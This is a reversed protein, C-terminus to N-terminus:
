LNGEIQMVSMNRAIAETIEDGGGEIRITFNQGSVDANNLDITGSEAQNTDVTAVPAAGSDVNGGGRSAGNLNALQAVGSAAIAAAQAWGFMGGQALAKQVGIATDAVIIGAGVAKNDELLASNIGRAASLGANMASEKQREADRTAKASERALTAQEKAFDAEAQLRANAYEEYDVLMASLDNKNQEVISVEEDSGPTVIKPTIALEIPESGTRLEALDAMLGNYEERLEVVKARLKEANEADSGFGWNFDREEMLSADKELQRIQEVIDAMQSSIQAETGEELSELFHNVALTVRPVNEIMYEFFDKVAPALTSAILKASNGLTDMTLDFATAADKLDKAEEDTIALQDNAKRYSTTMEDLAKSNDEFLPILRSLDNGMSELVFTMENGTAGADEMMHVMQGIVQDSSLNQFEKALRKGQEQTLGMVDVFDQFAGAGTASFEGLKDSVDKSIDAIQEANIGYQKTAFALAEFEGTTLKAQSALLQLEQEGKAAFTVMTTLATAVFTIATATAAFADGVGKATKTLGGLASDNKKTQDELGNLREETRKLEAQLKGTKADLEIILSETTM